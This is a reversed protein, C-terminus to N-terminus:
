GARALGNQEVGQAQAQAIADLAIGNAGAGVAGLDGGGELNIGVAIRRAPQFLVLKAGVAFAQQPPYDLLAAAGFAEDVAARYRQLQHALQALEQHVDVALVGVLRQEAAVGLPLRQVAEAAQFRLQLRDAGQIPPQLVD